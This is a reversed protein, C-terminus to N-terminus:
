RLYCGNNLDFTAGTYNRANESLLFLVTHASLGYVADSSGEEGSVSSMNVIVGRRQQELLLAGFLKSGYVFGKVNM